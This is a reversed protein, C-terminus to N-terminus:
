TKPWTRKSGPKKQQKFYLALILLVFFPWYGVKYRSLTGFNPTSFAILTSLSVIYILTLLVIPSNLYLHFKSRWLALILSMLVATNELAVIFQWINTIELITPRFLGGFLAVPANIIYGYWTGDFYCYQITGNSSDKTGMQYNTYIVDFVRALSLNYHLTSVLFIGLFMIILVFAPHIRSYRGLFSFILLSVLLPIAVAAYFYKLEWLLYLSIMLYIWNLFSNFNQTRIIRLVVGIAVMLAGVALCEKLVGSTWFIFTPLFYFSISISKRLGEFTKDLENVIFYVCLFNILSLYASIIWYNGGTFLYFISIIKSFLLARPQEYFVITNALESVNTTDFYILFFAKPHEFLFNGITAAERFYQFTDGGKYYFKYILGLGIGALIKFLLGSIEIKGYHFKKTLAYCLLGFLIFSIVSLWVM